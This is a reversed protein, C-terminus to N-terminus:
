SRASKELMACFCDFIWATDQWGSGDSPEFQVTFADFPKYLLGEVTKDDAQELSVEAVKPDISSREVAYGHNQNTTMLRGDSLRRVPQNAGRHAHEMKVCKMSCALALMQHGLGVGFLPLGCRTLEQIVRIINSDDDPDGPGDSLYIGHPRGALVQEATSGAPYLTVSVGRRNLAPVSTRNCGYDLMAVRFREQEAQFQQPQKTTVAWVAGHISYEKMQELLKEKNELRNTIAAKKYGGDLLMRTLRRTDIACLGVIGQERLYEDLTARGEAPQDYWERVLYGSAMINSMGRSVGRNGALPYTQAVIQGYYTPDSLLEEFSSTSTNFVVEGISEGVKGMSLGELVAGDELILYAKQADKGQPM